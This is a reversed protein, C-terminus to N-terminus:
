KAKIYPSIRKSLVEPRGSREGKSLWIWRKWPEFDGNLFTQFGKYSRCFDSDVPQALLRARRRSRLQVTRSMGRASKPSSLRATCQTLNNTHREGDVRLLGRGTPPTDIPQRQGGYTWM